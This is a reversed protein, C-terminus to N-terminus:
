VVLQSVASGVPAAQLVAADASGLPAELESVISLGPQGECCARLRETLLGPERLWAAAAPTAAPLFDDLRGSWRPGTREDNALAPQLSM